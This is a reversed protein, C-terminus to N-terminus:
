SARFHREDLALSQGDEEDALMTHQHLKGWRTWWEDAEDIANYAWLVGLDDWQKQMMEETWHLRDRELFPRIGANRAEREPGPPLTPGVANVIERKSLDEARTRRLTIYANLLRSIESPSSIYSFLTALMVASEIPNSTGHYTTPQLPWSSLRKIIVIFVLCIQKGGDATGIRWRSCDDEIPGGLGGYIALEDM